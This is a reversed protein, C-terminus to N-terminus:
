FMELSKGHHKLVEEITPYLVDKLHFPSILLGDGQSKATEYKKTFEAFDGDYQTLVVIGIKSLDPDNKILYNRTFHGM